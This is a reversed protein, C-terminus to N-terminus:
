WNKTSIIFDEFLKRSIEDCAFLREPHWQYARIYQRDTSYVAEIIGDDAKAMVQLNKGLSKISQHHFSNVRINDSGVLDFLPTEQMVSVSHSFCDKPEVQRHSINTNIQTPIDQYLTGGLAVNIVQAGRCIGMIPKGTKIIKDFLRLEFEDRKNQINGCESSINEGYYKPDIDGGGSFLFGDCNDLMSELEDDFTYPLIFPIGGSKIIADVYTPQLKVIGEEDVDPFIGITPNM